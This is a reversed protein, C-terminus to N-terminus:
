RCSIELRYDIILARNLLQWLLDSLEDHVGLAEEYTEYHRVRVLNCDAFVVIYKLKFM